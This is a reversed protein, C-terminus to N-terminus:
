FIIVVLENTWKLYILIGFDLENKKNHFGISSCWRKSWITLFYYKLKLSVHYPCLNVGYHFRNNLETSVLNYMGMIMEPATTTMITYMTNPNIVVQAILAYWWRLQSNSNMEHRPTSSIVNHSLTQWHSAVSWHHKDPYEPKGWWYLQDRYLQFITLLPM